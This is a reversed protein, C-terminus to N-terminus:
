CGFTSYFSEELEKIVLQLIPEQNNLESAALKLEKKLKLNNMFSTNRQVIELSGQLSYYYSLSENAYLLSLHCKRLHALTHQSDIKLFKEFVVSLKALTLSKPKFNIVRIAYRYNRGTTKLCDNFLRCAEPEENIRSLDITEVFSSKFWIEAEAQLKNSFLYLENEFKAKKINKKIAM